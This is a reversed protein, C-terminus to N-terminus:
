PPCHLEAAAVTVLCGLTYGYKIDGSQRGWVVLIKTCSVYKGLYTFSQSVVNFICLFYCVILFGLAWSSTFALVLIVGVVKVWFGHAYVNHYWQWSVLYSVIRETNDQRAWCVFLSMSFPIIWCRQQETIWTKDLNREDLGTRFAVFGMLFCSNQDCEKSDYEPLRVLM